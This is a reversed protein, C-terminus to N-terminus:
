TTSSSDPPRSSAGSADSMTAYSHTTDSKQERSTDTVAAKVVKMDSKLEAVDSSLQRVQAPVVAMAEAFRQLQTTINELV